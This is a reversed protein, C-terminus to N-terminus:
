SRRKRDDEEDDDSDGSERFRPNKEEGPNMIQSERQPRMGMATMMETDSGITIEVILDGMVMAEVMDVMQGGSRGRGWQRGEQFGWDFDVRIPRDDLITGSIYKVADEADERSYFLVFCFGCPTKTNKDLGMIIKKIEGARSFLEYVQEETTYFSMNGVYVTISALLAREFDEQSGSFRRDRYASLKTPDQGGSRGRGWQRGEQFGWDFDVRIPRDDLITGSIYKVADEADERSYFLVFCFGCPTKTNKDLGMIIKKIEGARSFLEYVQEETTYFSMNGVYVTISALLAREFDEQSGSFRRDRYASLKTPDKFLSAM